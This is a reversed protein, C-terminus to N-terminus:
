SKRLMLLREYVGQKDQKWLQEFEQIPMGLKNAMQFRALHKLFSVDDRPQIKAFDPVGGVQTSLPNPHKFSSYDFTDLMSKYILKQDPHLKDSRGPAKNLDIDKVKSYFKESDYDYHGIPPALSKKVLIGNNQRDISSKFSATGSRKSYNKVIYEMLNRSNADQASNEGIDLSNNFNRRKNTQHNNQGPSKSDNFSAYNQAFQDKNFVKIRFHSRRKQHPMSAEIAQRFDQTKPKQLKDKLQLHIISNMNQQSIADSYNKQEKTQSFEQINMQKESENPVFERIESLYNVKSSDLTTKFQSQKVDSFNTEHQTSCIDKLNGIESSVTQIEGDKTSSVDRHSKMPHPSSFSTNYKIDLYNNKFLTVQFKHNKPINNIKSSQARNHNGISKQLQKPTKPREVRDIIKSKKIESNQPKKFSQLTTNMTNNGYDISRQRLYNTNSQQDINRSIVQQEVKNAKGMTAQKKLVQIEDKELNDYYDQNKVPSLYEKWRRPIEDSIEIKDQVKRPRFILVKRVYPKNFSQYNQMENQILRGLQDREDVFPIFERKDHKVENISENAIDQAQRLGEDNKIFSNMLRKVHGHNNLKSIQQLNGPGSIVKSNQQVKLTTMTKNLMDTIIQKKKQPNLSNRMDM